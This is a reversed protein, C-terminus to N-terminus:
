EGFHKEGRRWRQSVLKEGYVTDTRFGGIGNKEVGRFMRDEDDIGVGAAQEFAMSEGAGPEIVFLNLFEELLAERGVDRQIIFEVSQDNMGALVEAARAVRAAAFARQLKQQRYRLRLM